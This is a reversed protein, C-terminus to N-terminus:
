LSHGLKNFDQLTTAKVLLGCALLATLLFNPSTLFIESNSSAFRTLQCSRVWNAFCISPLDTRLNSSAVIQTGKNLLRLAKQTNSLLAGALDNFTNPTARLPIGRLCLRVLRFTVRARIPIVGEPYLITFSQKLFVFQYNIYVLDM